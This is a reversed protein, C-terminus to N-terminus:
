RRLQRLRNQMNKDPAVNGQQRNAAAGHAPLVGTYPSAAYKNEMNVRQQVGARELIVHDAHVAALRTGSAVEEGEAVGLQRTDDLKLVAFGPKDGSATFVGLLQVNPLAVGQSVAETSVPVGFLQGTEIGAAREPVASTFIAQPAFLIWIWKALLVGLILASLARWSFPWYAAIRSLGSLAMDGMTGISGWNMRFTRM